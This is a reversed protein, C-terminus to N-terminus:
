LSFISTVSTDLNIKTTLFSLPRFKNYDRPSISHYLLSLTTTVRRRPLKMGCGMTLVTLGNAIVKAHTRDRNDLIRDLKNPLEYRVDDPCDLYLM